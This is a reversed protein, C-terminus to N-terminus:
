YIFPIIVKRTTPYDDFKKQYWNHHSRARPGLNFATNIAFGAAVWTGCALAFGTWEVIEGFYNAATVYNFMGGRPIKYGSEGPKRLSRLVGDSHVNISWGSVFMTVGIVFQPSTLWSESYESFHTISRCILYGNASCFFLASLFTFLPTPQGCRIRLPFILTRNFYHFVFLSLLVYSVLSTQTRYYFCIVAAVLCPCEQLIWAAKGPVQIGWGERSYRGYPATLGTLLLLAAVAMSGFLSKNLLSHFEFEDGPLYESLAAFDM